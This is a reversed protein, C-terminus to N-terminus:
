NQTLDKTMDEKSLEFGYDLVEKWSTLGSVYAGEEKLITITHVSLDPASASATIGKSTAMIYAETPIGQGTNIVGMAEDAGFGSPRNGNTYFARYTEPSPLGTFTDVLYLYGYGMEGCGAEKPEYTTFAMYSKGDGM